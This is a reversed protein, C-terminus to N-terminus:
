HEAETGAYRLLGGQLVPLQFLRAISNPEDNFTTAATESLFSTRGNQRTRKRIFGVSVDLHFPPEYRTIARWNSTFARWRDTGRANAGRSHPRKATQFTFVTGAVDNRACAFCDM